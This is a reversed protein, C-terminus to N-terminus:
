PVQKSELRVWAVISEGRPRTDLHNGWSYAGLGGLGPLKGLAFLKFAVAAIEIPNMQNGSPDMVRFDMARCQMHYSNKSGGVARNHAPSRYGGNPTIVIPRGLHGRLPQAVGHVLPELRSQVWAEPIPRAKPHSSEFERVWFHTSIQRDKAMVAVRLPRAHAQCYKVGGIERVHLACVPLACRRGEAKGGLPYQCLAVTAKSECGPVYCAVPM